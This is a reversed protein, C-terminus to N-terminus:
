ARQSGKVTSLVDTELVQEHGGHRAPGVVGFRAIPHETGRGLQEGLTAEVARLHAVDRRARARVDRRPVIVEARLAVEVDLHQAGAEGLHAGRELPAADLGRRRHEGAHRARRELAQDLLAHGDHHRVEEARRRAGV